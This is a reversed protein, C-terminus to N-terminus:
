ATGYLGSLAKMLLSEESKACEVNMVLPGSRRSCFGVYSGDVSGHLEDNMGIGVRTGESCFVIKFEFHM